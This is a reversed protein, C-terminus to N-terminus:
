GIELLNRPVRTRVDIRVPAANELLVVKLLDIRGEDGELSRDFGLAPVRKPSFGPREVTWGILAGIDIDVTEVDLQKRQSDDHDAHHRRM